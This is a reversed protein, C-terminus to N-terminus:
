RESNEKMLQEENKIVVKSNSIELIDKDKFEKLVRNVSRSTVGMREALVEVNITASKKGKNVTEEILFHCIRQKLPYLTNKGMKQMSVYTHNCLIKLVYQNFNHDNELWDLYSDRDLELTTVSGRGIVQCMYTRRDFLELEGIFNAKGYTTLYYKKGYDSLIFIDVEGDVLIYFKDHIEDQELRFAGAPYKKLKVARLIHYPCDKFIDYIKKEKEIVDLVDKLNNWSM